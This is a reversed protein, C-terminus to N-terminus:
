PHRHLFVNYRFPAHLYGALCQDRIEVTLGLAAAKAQWWDRPFFLHDLGQYHSDYDEGTYAARRAAMAQDRSALDPVDLIALGKRAKAAMRRLVAEAYAPDPFYLFVGNACVWDDGPETQLAAAEGVVFAGTPMARRAMDILVPSFDLGGVPHDTQAFPYLFAGAGCGVEFLADGPAIGLRAAIDGLYDGWAAVDVHGLTDFGDAALLDALQLQSTDVCARSAWVTKWNM